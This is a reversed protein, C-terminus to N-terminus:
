HLLASTSKAPMEGDIYLVKVSQKVEWGNAWEGTSLYTMITDLLWTKGEGRAGYIFGLDGERMWQGMLQAHAPLEATSLQELNMTAKLVSNLEAQFATEEDNGLGLMNVVNVEKPEVPPIGELVNVRSM